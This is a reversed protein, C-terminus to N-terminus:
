DTVFTQKGSVIWNQDYFIEYVRYDFTTNIPTSYVVVYRFERYNKDPDYTVLEQYNNGTGDSFIVHTYNSKGEGMFNEVDARTQGLHISLFKEKSFNNSTKTNQDVCSAILILFIIVGRKM